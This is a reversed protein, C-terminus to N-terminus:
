AAETCFFFKVEGDIIGIAIASSEAIVSHSDPERAEINGGPM